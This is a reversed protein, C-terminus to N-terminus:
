SVIVSNEYNKNLDLGEVGAIIYIDIVVEVGTVLELWDLLEEGRLFGAM